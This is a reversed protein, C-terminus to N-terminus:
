MLPPPPPTRRPLIGKAAMLEDLVPVFDEMSVLTNQYIWHGGPSQNIPRPWNPEPHLSFSFDGERLLEKYDQRRVYTKEVHPNTWEAYIGDHIRVINMYSGGRIRFPTGDEKEIIWGYPLIQLGAAGHKLFIANTWGAGHVGMLVDTKNMLDMIELFPEQFTTVRVTIDYRSLLYELIDAENIACRRLISRWMFTVVPREPPFKLPAEVAGAAEDESNMREVIKRTVVTEAEMAAAIEQKEERELKEGDLVERRSARLWELADVEDPGIGQRLKELGADGYGPWRELEPQKMHRMTRRELEATHLLRNFATVSRQRLLATHAVSEDTEATVNVVGTYMNLMNSKGILLTKFCVGVMSEWPRSDESVADYFHKWKSLPGDSYKAKLFIPGNTRNVAVLGPRCWQQTAPNCNTIATTTLNFRENCQEPIFPTRQGIKNEPYCRTDLDETFEQMNGQSDIQALPMLGEERLTQYAGMLADNLMHWVNTPHPTYLLYVPREEWRQCAPPAVEPGAAVYKIRVYHKTTSKMTYMAVSPYLPETHNGHVADMVIEKSPPDIGPPLHVVLTNEDKLFVNEFRFRKRNHGGSSGITAMIHVNSVFFDNRKREEEAAAHIQELEQHHHAFFDQKDNEHRQEERAKKLENLEEERKEAYAKPISVPKASSETFSHLFFFNLEQRRRM